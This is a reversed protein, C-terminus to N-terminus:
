NTLHLIFYAEWGQMENSYNGKRDGINGINWSFCVKQAVKPSGSNPCSPFTQFSQGVYFLLIRRAGWLSVCVSVRPPRYSIRRAAHM